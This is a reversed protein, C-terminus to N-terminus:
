CHPAHPQRPNQPKGDPPSPASGQSSSTETAQTSGVPPSPSTPPTASSSIPALDEPTIKLIVWCANLDSDGTVPSHAGVAIKHRGPQFNPIPIGKSIPQLGVPVEPLPISFLFFKNKPDTGNSIDYVNFLDVCVPPESEKKSKKKKKTEPEPQFGPPCAPNKDFDYDFKIVLKHREPSQARVLGAGLVAALMVLGTLGSRILAEGRM